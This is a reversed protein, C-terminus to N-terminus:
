PTYGTGSEDKKPGALRDAVLALLGFKILEGQVQAARQRDAELKSERKRQALARKRAKQGSKGLASYYPDPAAKTHERIRARVTAASVGLEKGIQRLSYSQARLTLMREIDLRIRGRGGRPPGIESAFTMSRSIREHRKLNGFGRALGLPVTHSDTSDRLNWTPAASNRRKLFASPGHDPRPM